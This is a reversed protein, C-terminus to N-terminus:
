GCCRQARAGSASSSPRRAASGPRVAQKELAVPAHDTARRRTPPPATRGLRVPAPRGGLRHAPRRRARSAAHARDRQRAENRSAPSTRAGLWESQAGPRLSSSRGAAELADLERRARLLPGNIHKLPSRCGTAPSEGAPSAPTPRERGLPRGPPLHLAPGENPLLAGPLLGAECLVQFGNCIGLVPGGAGAFQRAGGDGPRLPRDRGRAPLRRLLLRRPRDRRRAGLPRPGRALGAPRRRGARLRPRRRARRLLGPVAPGRVSMAAIEFDEILPNALLQECLPRTPGTTPRSSSSAPRRPRRLRWRVRAGAAGAGGGQGAPRPHGGQPPDAGAGENAGSILRAVPSSRATAPRRPPREPVRSRMAQLWRPDGAEHPDSPPKVNADAWATVEAPVDRGLVAYVPALAAAPDSRLDENRLPVYRDGFPRLGGAPSPSPPAALGDSRADREGPDEGRGRVGADWWCSPSARPGVVAQPRLPVRLLRGAGSRRPPAPQGRGLVISAALARPIASSTSSLRRRPGARPRRRGQPLPPDGQGDRPAGHRATSLFRLFRPM